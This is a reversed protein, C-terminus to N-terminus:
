AHGGPSGLKSLGDLLGGSTGARFLGGLLGGASRNGLWHRARLNDYVDLGGVAAPTSHDIEWGYATTKGYEAWCIVRGDCDIRDSSDELSRATNWAVLKRREDETQGASGLLTPGALRTDKSGTMQVGSSFCKESHKWCSSEINM